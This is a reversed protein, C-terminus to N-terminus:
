HDAVEVSRLFIRALSWASGICPLFCSGSASPTYSLGDVNLPPQKVADTPSTALRVTPRRSERRQSAAVRRPRRGAVVGELEAHAARVHYGLDKKKGDRGLSSRGSSSPSGAEAALSAAPGPVGRRRLAEGIASALSALKILEREQLEAHTVHPTASAPLSAASKSSSERRRSRARSRTSRRCRRRRARSGPCWSIRCCAPARSLVERKDAFYRFFTRETLGARAAIDAVTTRDFGRERYLQM